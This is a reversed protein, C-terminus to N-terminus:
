GYAQLGGRGKPGERPMGERNDRQQRLSGSWLCYFARCVPLAYLGRTLVRKNRNEVQAPRMQTNPSVWGVTQPKCFHFQVCCYPYVVPARRPQIGSFLAVMVRSDEPANSPERDSQYIIGESGQQDGELYDEM